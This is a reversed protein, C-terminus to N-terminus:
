LRETLPIEDNTILGIEELAPRQRGWRENLLIKGVHMDIPITAANSDERRGGVSLTQRDRSPRVSGTGQHKLAPSQTSWRQADASGTKPRFRM